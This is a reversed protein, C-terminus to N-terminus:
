EATTSIWKGIGRSVNGILRHWGNNFFRRLTYSRLLSTVTFVCTIVFNDTHTVPIDWIPVVIWIWVGLSIFFGLGVNMAAEVASEIRSQEM